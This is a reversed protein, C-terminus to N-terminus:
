TSRRFVLLDEHAVVARPLGRARARRVQDLAFFSVRPVITDERLGCLLVVNREYLTLGSDEGLRGLMGPLDVLQGAKWYPRVTMAVVGGPKLLRSAGTLIERTAHLLPDLGVHALNAPDRSYRFHKKHVGVGPEANVQGHVSSGYPPSTLVLAVLGHAAPDILSSLHRADGTIVEGHGTAGLSTAHDLNAQALAAWEPEYEVGIADRGVHVAEVLTTGIGCMPDVVLDGPQSYATIATRAVAPLMKAPHTGSLPLYRGERQARATAQATPWVSLPLNLTM